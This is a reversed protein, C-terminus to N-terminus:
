PGEENFKHLPQIIDTNEMAHQILRLDDRTNPTLRGEFGPDLLRNLQGMLTEAEGRSLMLHMSYITTAKAM